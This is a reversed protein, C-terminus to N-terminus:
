KLTVTCDISDFRMFDNAQYQDLDDVDAFRELHNERKNKGGRVDSRKAIVDYIYLRTINGRTDCEVSYNMRLQTRDAGHHKYTFYQNGSGSQHFDAKIKPDSIYKFAESHANVIHFFRKLGSFLAKEIDPKKHMIKSVNKSCFIDPTITKM